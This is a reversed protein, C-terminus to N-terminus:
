KTKSVVFSNYLKRLFGFVTIFTTILSAVLEILGEVESQDINFNLFSAGAMIYVVVSLLVGKITLGAEHPNESSMILWNLFKNLM